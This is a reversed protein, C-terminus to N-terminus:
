EADANGEVTFGAAEIADFTKSWSIVNCRSSKLYIKKPLVVPKSLKENAASLAAESAILEIRFKESVIYHLNRDRQAAELQAILADLDPMPVTLQDSGYSKAIEFKSKLRAIRLEEINRDM